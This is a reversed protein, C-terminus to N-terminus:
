KSELVLVWDNGDKPELPADFTKIGSNEIEGIAQYNGTRPDFWQAKVTKGAIKGMNVKFTRGTYTYLFAYNKGHTAVVYEYKQGNDVVLSQDPIREFFPKSLLLAKLHKMQFSGPKAMGEYWYEQPGFSTDNYKPRHMQMVSNQGYTYGFAGAFVSWYGYRRVDADTWRPQNVDHLGYPIGEYSPEGDIVPKTPKLQYDAQIYRWNDEGYHWKEKASTDQAYTRHGSQVMNFDLWTDKHFWESSSTRGRPHYTILHNKDIVRITKGFVDWVKKGTSGQIDGGNLWIINSYKKYRNALFTAYINAREPTVKKDKVNGGWLPVFGIYIGKKEATRIVFDVHDWFDYAENDAVDSGKTVKPKAINGGVLASDGYINVVNLTHLGMAQIVNFGKQRRDELYTEVEERTLKSFLLWGTDGLWFFPKGDKTSLYRKNDSVKLAPVQAKTINGTILLLGILLAFFGKKM